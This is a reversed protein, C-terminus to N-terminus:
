SPDVLAVDAGTRASLAEILADLEAQADAPVPAGVLVLAAGCAEVLEAVEDVVRGARVVVRVAHPTDSVQHSVLDIQADLLWELEDTVVDMMDDDLDAFARDDLLALYILALGEAVARQYASRLSATRGTGGWSVYVLEGSM